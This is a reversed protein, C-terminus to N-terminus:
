YWVCNLPHTQKLYQTMNSFLRNRLLQGNLGHTHNKAKMSIYVVIVHFYIDMQVIFLVMTKQVDLGEHIYHWIIHNKVLICTPGCVAFVNQSGFPASHFCEGSADHLEINEVAM